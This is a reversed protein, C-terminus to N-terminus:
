LCAFPTFLFQRPRRRVFMFEGLVSTHSVLSPLRGVAASRCVSPRDDPVTQFAQYSRLACKSKMGQMAMIAMNQDDKTKQHQRQKATQMPRGSTPDTETENMSGGNAKVKMTKVTKKQQRGQVAARTQEMGQESPLNETTVLSPFFSSLLRPGRLVRHHARQWPLLSVEKGTSFTLVAYRSTGKESKPDENM